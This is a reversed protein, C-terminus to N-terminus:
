KSGLLYYTTASQTDWVVFKGAPPMVKITQGVAVQENVHTSVKGKYVKKISVKTESELPSSSMSYARREEKGGIQFALTLYQGAKYSFAERHEEPIDFVISTAEDTEKIVEKVKLDYFQTDM